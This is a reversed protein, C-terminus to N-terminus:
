RGREIEGRRIVNARDEADARGTLEDAVIALHM